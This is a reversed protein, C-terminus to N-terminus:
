LRRSSLGRPLEVRAATNIELTQASASLDEVKRKRFKGHKKCHVYILKIVLSANSYVFSLFNISWLHLM